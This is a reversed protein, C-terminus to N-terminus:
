VNTMALLPLIISALLTIAGIIAVVLKVSKKNM